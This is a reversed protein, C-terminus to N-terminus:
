QRGADQSVAWFPERKASKLTEGMGVETRRRQRGFILITRHHLVALEQSTKSGINQDSFASLQALFRFPPLRVRLRPSGSSSFRFRCIVGEVLWEIRTEGSGMSQAPTFFASSCFFASSFFLRQLLYHAPPFLASSSIIRQLFYPAPTSFASSGEKRQRGKEELPFLASSSFLRWLL